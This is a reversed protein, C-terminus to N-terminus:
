DAPNEHFRCGVGAQARFPTQVSYKAYRAARRPTAAPQKVCPGQGGVAPGHPDANPGSASTGRVDAESRAVQPADIQVGSNPPPHGGKM